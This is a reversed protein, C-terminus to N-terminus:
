SSHLITLSRTLSGECRTFFLNYIRHLPRLWACFNTRFLPGCLGSAIQYRSVFKPNEIDNLM